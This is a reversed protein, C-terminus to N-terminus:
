LESYNPKGQESELAAVEPNESLNVKGGWTRTGVSICFHVLYLDYKATSDTQHGNVVLLLQILPMYIFIGPVCIPVPLMQNWDHSYHVVLLQLLTKSGLFKSLFSVLNLSTVALPYYPSFFSTQITQQQAISFM